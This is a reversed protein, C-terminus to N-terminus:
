GWWDFEGTPTERKREGKIVGARYLLTPVHTVKSPIYRQGCLHPLSRREHMPLTPLSLVSSPGRIVLPSLGEGRRTTHRQHDTAYPHPHGHTHIYTPISPIPATRPPCQKFIAQSISRTYSKKEGLHGNFFFFFDIFYCILCFLPSYKHIHM